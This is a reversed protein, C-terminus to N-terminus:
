ASISNRGSVESQSQRGAKLARISNRILLSGAIMLALAVAVQAAVFLDRVRRSRGSPAGQNGKLASALASRSSELAPALGFLLSAIMSLVFVYVFTEVDPTVRFIVTGYEAPFAKAAM